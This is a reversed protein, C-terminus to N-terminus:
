YAGRNVITTSRLAGDFNDQPVLTRTGTGIAPSDSQLHFNFPPSPVFKSDTVLDHSGIPKAGQSNFLVNYDWTLQTASANNAFYMPVAANGYQINNLVRIDNANLTTIEGGTPQLNFPAPETASQNNEFSTNNFVDVHQSHYTSIARSGNNYILNNYVQVRGAYGATINNDVIIGSGDTIRCPNTQTRNCIFNQNDYVVNDYVFIKAGTNTDSNTGSVSIGSTDLPSWFCNHHVTNRFIAAHDGSYLIGAGPCYSVTNNRITVHHGTSYGDICNGNTTLSGNPAAQAQAATVSQANGVVNFGMVMIYSMPPSLYGIQIGNFLTADKRVTPHQGSYAQYTIYANPAGPNPIIFPGYTGNMVSVTDGPKTLNAAHQITLFPATTSTGSNTDKGTTSVYYTTALAAPALGSLAALAYLTTIVRRATTM